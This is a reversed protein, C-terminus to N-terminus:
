RLAFAVGKQNLIKVEDAVRHKVAASVTKGDIINSM